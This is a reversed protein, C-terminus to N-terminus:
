LFVKATQAVVICVLIGILTPLLFALVTWKISGTEKKITLLTTACPWHILSFLMTCIATVWTWGNNILLEKLAYLNDMEMMYGSSMYAMIIIPVVIENAPFGLIFALLIVGDLGMLKAFPDLFSSVHTLLTTDQITINAMMWIVIGAPIAVSIARGLVFLTRDFLSRTIVKLFQPKRYPPLELTFSSPIGKLVTMSLLRSVWFTLFVGLLITGTLMITSVFSDWPSAFMGAFFMTIIAILTPFRGNCPVFNNTLIAVLRERKSDIIRCGSVGVANCGFGMCMTLAQKGCAKAKQFYGDLNFAIRPLYGFDELITFLPFFIAMPPLMVSVVWTLTKYVGDMLLARLTDHIGIAILFDHLHTEMYSFMTSLMESPVNAGVITIWFIVGLLLIMFFVGYVKHTMIRDIHLDRKYYECNHYTICDDSINKAVAQISQVIRSELGNPYNEKEMAVVQQVEEKNHINEYYCDSEEELLKLAMFRKSQISNPLYKVIRSISGEIEEDYVVCVKQETKKHTMCKEISDKLVDFGISNRASMSVVDVGLYASLKETDIVIKKKKAEDCLNLCVVVDKTIELTQLVLNLNRELCTADCVVVCVDYTGFCIFDRTVEEESSHALLSYTGPLDMMEHVKQNHIYTGSALSVTKGPWNGTHQRMGTLANFLTSKGVNPNGVLAICSEKKMKLYADNIEDNMELLKEFM